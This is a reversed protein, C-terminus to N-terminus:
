FSFAAANRKKTFEECVGCHHPTQKKRKPKGTPLGWVM